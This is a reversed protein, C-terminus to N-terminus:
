EFSLPEAACASRPKELAEIDANTLGIKHSM